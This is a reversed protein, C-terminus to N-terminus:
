YGWNKIIGLIGIRDHVYLLPIIKNYYKEIFNNEEYYDIVIPISGLYLSEWFRPSEITNWSLCLTFLHSYTNDWHEEQNMTHTIFDTKKCIDVAECYLPNQIPSEENLRVTQLFYVYNKIDKKRSLLNNFIDKINNLTRIRYTSIDFKSDERQFGGVPFSKVNETNSNCSKTFINKTLVENRLKIKNFNNNNFCIPTILETNSIHFDTYTCLYCKYNDDYLDSDKKCIKIKNDKAFKEFDENILILWKNDSNKNYKWKYIIILDNNKIINRVIDLWYNTKKENYIISM